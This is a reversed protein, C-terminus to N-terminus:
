LLQAKGFFTKANTEIVDVEQLLEIMRCLKLECSHFICFYERANGLNFSKGDQPGLTTTARFLQGDFQEHLHGFKSSNKSISSNVDITLIKPSNVSLVQSRPQITKTTLLFFRFM